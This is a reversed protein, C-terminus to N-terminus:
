TAGFSQHWIESEAGFAGSAVGSQITKAADYHSLPGIQRGGRDIIYWNDM